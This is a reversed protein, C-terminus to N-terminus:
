GALKTAHPSTEKSCRHLDLAKSGPIKRVQEMKNWRTGMSIAFVKRFPFGYIYIYIYIFWPFVVLASLPLHREEVQELLEITFFGKLLDGLTALRTLDSPKSQTTPGFEALIKLSVRPVACPAM